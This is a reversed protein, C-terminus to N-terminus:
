TADSASRYRHVARILQAVAQVLLLVFCVLIMAKLPYRPLGGPDPSVERIQWSSRIV